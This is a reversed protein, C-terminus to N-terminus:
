KQISTNAHQEMNQARLM